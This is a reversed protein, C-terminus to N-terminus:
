QPKPVPVPKVAPKGHNSRLHTSVAFKSAAGKAVNRAARSVRKLEEYLLGKQANLARVEPSLKALAAKHAAVASTLGILLAAGAAKAAPGGGFDTARPDGVIPLLKRISASLKAISTGTGANPGLGALGPTIGITTQADRRWTKADGLLKDLAEGTPLASDKAVQKSEATHEVQAILAGMAQHWPAGFGFREFAFTAMEGLITTALGTLKAVAYRSGVDVRDAEALAASPLVNKAAPKVPAKKSTKKTPPM